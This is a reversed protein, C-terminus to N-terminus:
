HAKHAQTHDAECLPPRPSFFTLGDVNVPHYRDVGATRARWGQENRAPEIMVSQGFVTHEELKRWIGERVRKSVRGVFVGPSVEVLWRTLNGRLGPPAAILVICIM